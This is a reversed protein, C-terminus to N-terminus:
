SLEQQSPEADAESGRISAQTPLKATTAISLVARIGAM